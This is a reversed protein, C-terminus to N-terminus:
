ARGIEFEKKQLERIHEARQHDAATMSRVILGATPETLYAVAQPTSRCLVEGMELGRETKVIVRDLRSVSNEASAEFEGLFRMAGHRVIYKAPNSLDQPQPALEIM